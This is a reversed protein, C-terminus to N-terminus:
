KYSCWVKIGLSGYPTHSTAQGFDKKASYSMKRVSGISFVTKKSRDSGNIRGKVVVYVGELHKNEVSNFHKSISAFCLDLTRGHRSSKELLIAIFTALLLSISHKAQALMIIDEVISPLSWKSPLYTKLYVKTPIGKLVFLSLHKELMFVLQKVLNSSIQKTSFVGFNITCITPSLHSKFFLVQYGLVNFFSTLVNYILISRQFWLSYSLKTFLFSSFNFVVSAM